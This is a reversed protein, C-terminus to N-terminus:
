HGGSARVSGSFLRSRPVDGRAAELLRSFWVGVSVIGSSPTKACAMVIAEGRPARWLDHRRLDIPQGYSAGM